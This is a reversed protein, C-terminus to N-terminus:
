IWFLLLLWSELSIKKITFGNFFFFISCQIDIRLFQVSNKPGFCQVYKGYVCACSRCCAPAMSISKLMCVFSIVMSKKLFDKCDEGRHILTRHGSRLIKRFVQASLSVPSHTATSYIRPKFCIFLMRHYFQYNECAERSSSSSFHQLSFLIARFQFNPCV